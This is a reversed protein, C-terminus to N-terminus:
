QGVAFLTANNIGYVTGDPGILTPTYAEGLGSTLVTSQTITNTQLDWRYLKGDESGALVSNTAPDIAASDICWEKVGPLGSNPTPGLLTLVEKMTKTNTLTYTETTDPDLIAIKNEGTGGGNAYDNYKTMLLYPSSGTYSPVM